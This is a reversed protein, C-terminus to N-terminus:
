QNLAWSPMGLPPQRQSVCASSIRSKTQRRAQASKTAEFQKDLDSFFEKVISARWPLDKVYIINEEDESEESSMMAPVLIKIWKQEDDQSYVRKKFVSLREELKQLFIILWKPVCSIFTYVATYKLPLIRVYWMSVNYAVYACGKGFM